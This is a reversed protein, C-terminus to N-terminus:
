SSLYRHSVSLLYYLAKALKIREERTLEWKLAEEWLEIKNEAQEIPQITGRKSEINYGWELIGRISACTGVTDFIADDKLYAKVCKEITSEVTIEAM